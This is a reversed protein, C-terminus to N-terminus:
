PAIRQGRLAACTPRSCGRFIRVEPPLVEFFQREDPRLFPSADGANEMVQLLWNRCDWTADFGSWQYILAPWFIEPPEGEILSLLAPLRTESGEAFCREKIAELAARRDRQRHTESYRNMTTRAKKARRRKEAKWKRRQAELKEADIPSIGPYMVEGQRENSLLQAVPASEEQLNGSLYTTVDCIELPGAAGSSTGL